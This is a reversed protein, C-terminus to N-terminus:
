ALRTLAFKSMREINIACRVTGFYWELLFLPLARNAVGRPLQGGNYDTYDEDNAVGGATGAVKRM